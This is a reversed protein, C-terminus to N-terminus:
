KDLKAKNLDLNNGELVHISSGDTLRHQGVIVIEEGESLGDLVEVNEGFRVGLKVAVAEVKDHTANVRFVLERNLNRVPLATPIAVVNERSQILVDVSAYMGPKLIYEGYQDKENSIVLEVQATRTDINVAPYIKNITCPIKKDPMSITTLIATTKGPALMALHNVPISLLVKVKEMSMITVVSTTPSVMSGPDTNKATVIGDMPAYLRTESYNVEAQEKDAYAEELDAEAQQVSAQYRAQNAKAQQIDAEASSIQAQASTQTALAQRMDAQAQDYATVARDYNQQTTAQQEFLMKQRALERLKEELSAKASDAAAAASKHNAIRQQLVAQANLLGADASGLNAKAVAINAKASSISAMANDLKAKLERSDILGILQGKKVPVGESVPTGDELALTLLRGSIKPQLAVTHMAEVDGNFTMVQDITTRSVKGIQVTVARDRKGSRKKQQEGRWKSIKAYGYGSGILIIVVIAGTVLNVVKKSIAPM